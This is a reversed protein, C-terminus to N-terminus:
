TMSELASASGDLADSGGVATFGDRQVLPAGTFCQPSVADPMVGTVADLYPILTAVWAAESALAPDASRFLM